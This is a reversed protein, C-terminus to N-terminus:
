KLSKKLEIYKQKYKDKKGGLYQVTAWAQEESYLENINRHTSFCIIIKKLIERTEERYDRFDNSIGWMWSWSKKRINIYNDVFEKLFENNMIDPDTRLKELDDDTIYQYIHIFIKEAKENKDMILKIFYLCWLRSIRKAYKIDRWPFYLDSFLMRELDNIMYEVSYCLMNFNEGDPTLFSMNTLYTEIPHTKIKEYFM